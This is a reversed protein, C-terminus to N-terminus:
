PEHYEFVTHCGLRATAELAMTHQRQRARRKCKPEDLRMRMRCLRLVTCEITAIAFSRLLGGRGSRSMRPWHHVTPGHLVNTFGEAPAPDIEMSRLLLRKEALHDACSRDVRPLVASTAEPRGVRTATPNATGRVTQEPRASKRLVILAHRRPTPMFM